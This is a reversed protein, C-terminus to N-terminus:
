AELGFEGTNGFNGYTFRNLFRFCAIGDVSTPPTPVGIAGVVRNFGLVPIELRVLYLAFSGAFIGGLTVMQSPKGACLICDNEELLLDFPSYANGAGTDALLTRRVKAGGLAMTLMVEIVPRGHMLPWQARPM